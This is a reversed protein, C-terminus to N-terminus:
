VKLFGFSFNKSADSVAALRTGGHKPSWNLSTIPISTYHESTFSLIAKSSTNAASASTNTDCEMDEDEQSDNAQSTTPMEEDQSDNAKDGTEDVPLPTAGIFRKIEVEPHILTAVPVTRFAPADDM